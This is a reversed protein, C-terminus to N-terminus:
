RRLKTSAIVLFNLDKDEFSIIFKLRRVALHLFNYGSDCRAQKGKAESEAAGM